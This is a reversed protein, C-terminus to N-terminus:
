QAKLKIDLDGLWERCAPYWNVGKLGHGGTESVMIKANGGAGILAKEYAVGGTFFAADDKAYVMFTPAINDKMPFEASLEPGANGELLYAASTLIVFAPECSMSDAADVTSYASKKYNQSLRAVLHGGASSGLVGLQDPDINWDRSRHRIVRMARQVDAFAAERDDPVTYRLMFVTIGCANLWDIVESKPTLHKYGGGPCYLVAPTPGEAQAPFVVLHPDTVNEYRIKGRNSVDYRLRNPEGGVQNMPWLRVVPQGAAMPDQKKNLEELIVAAVREALAQSGEPNFHVNQPQQWEALHPLCYAHLDNVRIQNEEMIKVAVANYEVPAEPTRLPNLTGPVVPTTTAFVLRADTRRLAAVIERLNEEYEQPTSQQPDNPDNSKENTHPKKVHKLDHLGWNFHIVDWDHAKLMPESIRLGAVTGNCNKPRTGDASVPRYVNAKGKLLARVQRTYGISISDGLILVNPLAPHPTFTWDTNRNIEAHSGAEPAAHLSITSICLLATVGTAFRNMRNKM